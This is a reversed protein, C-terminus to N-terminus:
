NKFKNKYKYNYIIDRCEIVLKDFRKTGLRYRVGSSEHIIKLIEPIGTFNALLVLQAFMIPSMSILKADALRQKRPYGNHEGYDDMMIEIGYGLSPKNNNQAEIFFDNEGNDEEGFFCVSWPAPTFKNESM